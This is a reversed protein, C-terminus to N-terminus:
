IFVNKETHVIKMEIQCSQLGENVAEHMFSLLQLKEESLRMKWSLLLHPFFSLCFLM